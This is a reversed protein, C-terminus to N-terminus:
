FFDGDIIRRGITGASNSDHEILSLDRLDFRGARNDENATTSGDIVEETRFLGHISPKLMIQFELAARM